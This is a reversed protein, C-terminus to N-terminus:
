CNHPAVFSSWGRRLPHDGNFEQVFNYSSGLVQCSGQPWKARHMCHLVLGGVLEAGVLETVTDRWSLLNTDFTMLTHIEQGQSVSVKCTHGNRM